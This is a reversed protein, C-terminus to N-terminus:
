FSTTKKDLKSCIDHMSRSKVFASQIQSVLSNLHLMIQLALRKSIWKRLGHILSIPRYDQVMDVGEKKPILVINASNLLHLHLTRLNHFSRFVAMVDVKIISWYFKYFNFTFGEPGLTTM